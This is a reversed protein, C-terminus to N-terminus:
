GFLCAGLTAVSPLGLADDIAKRGGLSSLACRLALEPKAAAHYPAVIRKEPAATTARRELTEPVTPSRSSRRAFAREASGLSRIMSRSGIAAHPVAATAARIGHSDSGETADNAM